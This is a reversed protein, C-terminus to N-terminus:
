EKPNWAGLLAKLGPEVVLREAAARDVWRRERQGKEPWASHEETVELPFVTVTLIQFSASRRKFYQYTGVPMAAISGRVGAEEWAERAAAENSTRNKMPWGKPVVWRRTERSTVLLVQVAGDEGKRWPLAAVQGARVASKTKSAKLGASTRSPAEAETQAKKARSKRAM